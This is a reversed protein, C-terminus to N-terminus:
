SPATRHRKTQKRCSTIACPGEHIRLLPLGESIVLFAVIFSLGVRTVARSSAGNVASRAAHTEMGVVGNQETTFEPM